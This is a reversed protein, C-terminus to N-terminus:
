PRRVALLTCDDALPVPGSFRLLERRVADLVSGLPASTAPLSDLAGILGEMSFEDGADNRAETVGDTYCLLTTGREIEVELTRYRAGSIPGILMGKPLPLERTGAASVLLPSWHGGNSYSLRGSPVDLFGCFMTAFMSAENGASLQANLHELVAHPEDTTMAAIRILGVIRAMFLAAPIGHGSVDGICVFLRQPSVFFADFLDGGVSSAPAMAGEAEIDCREPFLPGPQPLMSNQLQRAIELEEHLHELELRERQTRLVAENSRRMRETLLSLLNRAVGPVTNLREWFIEPPLKIVQSEEEACVLASVAKGDIASMEGVSEGPLIAIGSEPSTMGDLYTALRGSLLLYVSDNAQGPELLRTGAALTLVPSDSLAAAIVAADTGRFLASDSIGRLCQAASTAGSEQWRVRVTLQNCGDCRRYGLEDSNGRLLMLGLGGADADALTALKPALTAQLPDFPSGADSVELVAERRTGDRCVYLRAVIPAQRAGPGGHSLINALVEDLCHDLSELQAPPIGLDGGAQMLWPSASGFSEPSATLSLEAHATM